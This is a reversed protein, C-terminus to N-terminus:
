FLCNIENRRSRYLLRCVDKAVRIGGGGTGVTREQIRIIGGGEDVVVVEAWSASQASQCVCFFENVEEVSSLGDYVFYAGGDGRYSLDCVALVCRDLAADFCVYGSCCDGFADRFVRFSAADHPSLMISQLKVYRKQLDELTLDFRITPHLLLLTNLRTSLSLLHPPTPQHPQKM